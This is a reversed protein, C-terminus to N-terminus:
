ICPPGGVRGHAGAAPDGASDGRVSLVRVWLVRRIRVYILAPAVVNASAPGAIRALLWPSVFYCAVALATGLVAAISLSDSLVENVGKADRKAFCIALMHTVARSVRYENVCTVSTLGWLKSDWM